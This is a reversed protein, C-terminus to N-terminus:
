VQFDLPDLPGQHVRVHLSGRKERSAVYGQSVLNGLTARRELSVLSALPVQSDQLVRIAGREKREPSVQLAPPGLCAGAQSVPSESQVQSVRLDLFGQTARQDM